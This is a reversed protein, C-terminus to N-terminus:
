RSNRLMVLSTPTAPKMHAEIYQQPDIGAVKLDNWDKYPDKPFAFYIEFYPRLLEYNDLVANVGPRIGRADPQDNDGGLIVVSPNLSRAKRVQRKSITAGGTAVAGPGISISDIAAEVVILPDGPEANDFGYLFETKSSGEPYEFIKGVLSRRMWYVVVGFEVYPLIISTSDYHIFAQKAEELTIARSKLYNVAMNYATSDSEDAISRASNPLAVEVEEPLKEETENEKNFFTRPDIAIGCVEKVADRYTINKYDSVFRFFSGDHEQHGPRWDHVWYGKRKDKGTGIEKEVLSINFHKGSDGWPNAIVVEVGNKRVKYDDFHKKLWTLIHDGTLHM